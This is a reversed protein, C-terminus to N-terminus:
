ATPEALNASAEGWARTMLVPHAAEYGMAYALEDGADDAQYSAPATGGYYWRHVEDMQQVDDSM